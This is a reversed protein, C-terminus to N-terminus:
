IKGSIYQNFKKPIHLFKGSQFCVFKLLHFPNQLINESLYVYKKHNFKTEIFLIERGSATKIPPGTILNAKVIFTLIFWIISKLLRSKFRLIINKKDVPEGKKDRM